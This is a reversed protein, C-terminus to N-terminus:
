FSFAWHQVRQFNNARIYMHKNKGSMRCPHSLCSRFLLATVPNNFAAAIAMSIKVETNRWRGGIFLEFSSDNGDNKV